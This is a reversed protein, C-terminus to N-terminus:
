ELAGATFRSVQSGPQEVSSHMPHLQAMFIHTQAWDLRQLYDFFLIVGVTVLFCLGM